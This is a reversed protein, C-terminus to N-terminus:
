PEKAPQTKGTQSKSSQEQSHNKDLQQKTNAAAAKYAEESQDVNVTLQGSSGVVVPSANGTTSINGTQIASAPHPNTTPASLASNREVQIFAIGLGGLLAVIALVGAFLPLWRREDKGKLRSLLGFVLFLAFGTLGLPETVVKTWDPMIAGKSSM